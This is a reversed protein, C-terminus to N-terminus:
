SISRTPKPALASVFDKKTMCNTCTHFTRRKIGRRPLPILIVATTQKVYPHPQENGQLKESMSEKDSSRLNTEKSHRLSSGHQEDPTLIPHLVFPSPATPSESSPSLRPILSPSLTWGNGTETDISELSPLALNTNISPGITIRPKKSPPCPPTSPETREKIVGTPSDCIFTM